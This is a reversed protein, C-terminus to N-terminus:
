AKESNSQNDKETGGTALCREEALHAFNQMDELSSFARLPVIVPSRTNTSMFVHYPTQSITVDSWAYARPQGEDRVTFGDTDVDLITPTSPLSLQAIRRRTRATLLIMSLAYGVIIALVVIGVQGWQTTPDWPLITKLQDEFVGVATGCLIIPGYLWLKQMGILERPLFEFAALDDRTLQYRFQRVLAESENTQSENTQSEDTM